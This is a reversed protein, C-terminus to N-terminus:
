ALLSPSNPTKSVKFKVQMRGGHAIEAGSLETTNRLYIELTFDTHVSNGTVVRGFIGAEVPSDQDVPTSLENWELVYSKVPM